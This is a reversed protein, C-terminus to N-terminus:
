GVAALILNWPLAAGLDFALLHGGVEGVIVAGPVVGPTDGVVEIVAVVSAVFRIPLPDGHHPLLIGTVAGPEGLRDDHLLIAVMDPVIPCVQVAEPVVAVHEDVALALAGIVGLDVHLFPVVSHSGVREVLVLGVARVRPLPLESLVVPVHEVELVAIQRGNVADVRSPVVALSGVWM